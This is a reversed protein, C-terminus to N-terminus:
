RAQSLIPVKSLLRSKGLMIDLTQYTEGMEYFALSKAGNHHGYVLDMGGMKGIIPLLYSSPSPLM